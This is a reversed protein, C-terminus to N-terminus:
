SNAADEFSFIYFFISNVVINACFVSLCINILYFSVEPALM